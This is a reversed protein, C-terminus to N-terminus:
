EGEDDLVFCGLEPPAVLYLDIGAANHAAAMFRALYGLHAATLTSDEIAIAWAGDAFGGSRQALSVDLDSVYVNGEIEARLQDAIVRAEGETLM